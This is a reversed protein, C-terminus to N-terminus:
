LHDPVRRDHRPLGAEFVVGATYLNGAADHTASFGWNEVASGTYSAFQVAPDITLPRKHDYAGLRFSVENGQLVFACAVPQQQGTAPDTQWARPRYETLPGVSTKM